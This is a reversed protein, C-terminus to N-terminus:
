EEYVRETDNKAIINEASQYTQELLMAITMPGVGGPVPTMYSAINAVRSDVDGILRGNSDHNMGVDVVIVGKKVYDPTIFHGSGISVILIDALRTMAKLNKTKSHAAIVTADEQLLLQAIPKGVINSRGVVVVTKGAISIDYAKLLRVIGYPTCPLVAHSGLLMHGMNTPHFGDVDKRFDVAQLVTQQDLHNPLPLQILLGHCTDDQNYRHIVALLDVQSITEPLREIKSNFGLEVSVREKNRLYVQSAENEGVMIVVLGPVIHHEAKMKKVKEALDQKICQSLQRGDLLKATM